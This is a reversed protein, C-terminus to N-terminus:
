QPACFPQIGLFTENVFTEGAGGGAPVAQCSGSTPDLDVSVAPGCGVVIVSEGCSGDACLGGGNARIRIESAEGPGLRIDFDFTAAPNAASPVDKYRTTMRDPEVSIQIEGGLEPNFDHWIGAFPAEAGVEALTPTQDFFPAQPSLTVFGNSSVFALDHTGGCFALPTQIPVGTVWNNTIAGLPYVVTEENADLTDILADCDNDIGDVMLEPAGPFVNPNTDDCDGECQDLLDGDTDIGDLDADVVGDCDNDIGDDCIEMNGPFRLVNDDDCDQLVLGLEDCDGAFVGDGDSDLENVTGDCDNDIGDCLELAGPFINVNTDDCDITDGCPDFGDGDVDNDLLGDCNNDLGDCLEPAGSFVTPNTDDCDEPLVEPLIESLNWDLACISQSDGDTQDGTFVLRPAPIASGSTGNCGTALGSIHNIKLFALDSVLAQLSALFAFGLLPSQDDEDSLILLSLGAGPRRWDPQVALSEVARLFPQEINNGDNGQAVQASFEASADASAPNVQVIFNPDTTTILAINFDTNAAILDDFLGPANGALAAQEDEMSCSDDVIVLIDVLGSGGCNNAFGDGDADIGNDVLVDCNNDLDDCIEPNGPFIAPDEDDCDVCGASLDGDLDDFGNDLVGDCDQDVGDCLEENGPFLDPDDDDCDGDCTTVGDGDADVSEDVEGNCDNDIGDTCDEAADPNVAPDADDCDDGNDVYEVGPPTCSRVVTDPDGFGDGDVDLFWEAEGGTAEEDIEGDCDNDIGDCIEAAGPFISPNLEDCDLADPHGDGDTDVAIENCGCLAVLAVLVAIWALSAPTKM